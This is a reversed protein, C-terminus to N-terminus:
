FVYFNVMALAIVIVFVGVAMILLATPRMEEDYVYLRNRKQPIPCVHTIFALGGNLISQSGIAAGLVYLITEFPVIRLITSNMMLFLPLGGFLLFWLIALIPYGIRIWAVDPYEEALKNGTMKIHYRFILQPIQITLSAFVIFGVGILAKTEM